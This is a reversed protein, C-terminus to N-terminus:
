FDDEGDVFMTEETLKEKLWLNVLTESAIGRMYAQEEIESLLKPEIAVSSSLSFAVDPEDTDFDVFDHEDWFEGMEELTQAKSISSKNETM